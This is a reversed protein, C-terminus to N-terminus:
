SKNLAETIVKQVDEDFSLEYFVNVEAETLTSPSKMNQGYLLGYLNIKAEALKTNM